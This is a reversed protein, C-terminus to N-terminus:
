SNPQCPRREPNTLAVGLDTQPVANRCYDLLLELERAKDFYVQAGLERAHAQRLPDQCGTWLIVTPASGEVYRVIRIAELLAFGGGEALDLDTIVLDPHLVMIKPVADIVTMATGIVTIGPTEALREVLRRSLETSEEVVFVRVM